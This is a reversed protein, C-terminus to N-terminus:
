LISLKHISATKSVGLESTLRAFLIAEPVFKNSSLLNAIDVSGSEGVKASLQISM